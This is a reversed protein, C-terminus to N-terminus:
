RDCDGRHCYKRRGHDKLVTGESSEHSTSGQQRTTKIETM